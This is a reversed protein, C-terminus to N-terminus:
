IPTFRGLRKEAILKDFGSLLELLEDIFKEERQRNLQFTAKLASRHAVDGRNKGFTTMRDLLLPFRASLVEECLGLQEFMKLICPATVGNNDGVAVLSKAVAIEAWKAIPQKAAASVMERKLDEILVLCRDELFHEIEAHALMRLARMQDQQAATYNGDSRKPPLYRRKLMTVRERLAVFADSHM